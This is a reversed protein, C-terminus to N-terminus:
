LFNFILLSGSLNQILIKNVQGNLLYVAIYDTHREDKAYFLLGESKETKFELSIDYARPAKPQAEYTVYTYQNTGFRIGADFDVDLDPTIPLKCIPDEKYPRTPRPRRTTTTTTTTTLTTSTPTTAGPRSPKYVEDPEIENESEDGDSDFRADIDPEQEEEPIIPPRTEPRQAPRTEPKTYKPETRGDPYFNPIALPEYDFLDRPCQDLVASQRDTSAAFNGPNSNITVDSICGIFYAANPVAGSRTRYGQPLGGFYIEGDDIYIPEPADDSETLYRDDISLRLRNSEHTATIVHWEGDNYKVAGTNIELTRSRLVLVGDELTLTFTVSQDPTTLYFIIGREERSRFKLNIILNNNVNIDNLKLHGPESPKYSLITSQKVPCGPRVDYAEINHTLDISIGTFTVDEICGDFNKSTIEDHPIHGRHPHGGFYMVDVEDLYEDTDATDGFDEEQYFQQGDVRLIGVRGDRDAEVRHWQDDNLKINSQLRVAEAREGLKFQFVVDGDQLEISIFHRSSGAYFLLGDPADQAAKFRLGINSRERFNYPKADLAVYGNGGFRLGNVPTDNDLLRDREIAGDTNSQGDVFNWLGVDKDGIKFDEIQGVFSNYKVSDQMKYDPPYGGVFIRSNDDWHFLNHDGPLEFPTEAFVEDGNDNEDRITLKVKQGSRDVIAQYWKNDAVYKKGIIKEPGNGLDINLVPYGNELELEMFDENRNRGGTKAENGLYFLFGDPRDTKFYTSVKTNSLVALDEPPKLELTTNPYFTLGVEIGNAADRAQKIKKKLEDINEGIVSLRSSSKDQAKKVDEEISLIEPVQNEIRRLHTNIQNISKAVDDVEKPIDRAKTVAEPIEKTIPKLINLAEKAKREAEDAYEAAREWEGAHSVSPINDLAENIGLLQDDSQKNLTVIGEVTKATQDLHPQLRTQVSNLATRANNLLERAVADSKAAKNEVGDSLKTANQAAKLATEIAQNAEEAIEAINDYAKVAKLAHNSASSSYERNLSDAIGELEEAKFQADRTIEDIKTYDEDRKDLAKLAGVNTEKLNLNEVDVDKHNLHIDELKSDAEDIRKKATALSDQIQKTQNGITDFKSQLSARKNKQNFFEADNAWQRSQATRNFLDEIREDFLAFNDKLHELRDYQEKVPAYYAEADALASQANEPQNVLDEPTKHTKIQALVDQAEAIATDLRTSGSQDLNDALKKVDRAANRANTNVFRCENLADNAALLTVEGQDIASETDNVAFSARKELAKADQLLQNITKEHPTLNVGKPDLKSVEPFLNNIADNYYDLKKATFYPQSAEDFEDKVPDFENKLADTVDLLAHHCADCEFCGSDQVLVWRYPCRDCKEGVVGPLCQCQGTQADCGLGRSYETNCKCHECGDPGYNWYGPLCRDCQPGTVGPKCACQGTHDDCQTSNSAVACDCARCGYGSEFGWHDDECRDCKEGVVNPLCHCQGTFSDCYETGHLDCICSQCDKRNVADGFYNAACLNCAAGATNNLCRLCEGSVSDCSSPDQPDINGSCGCPKCYEGEISPEGYFGAACSQCKEGAYGPKCDCHIRYGDESVECGFAFNNSEIPLPCACIMCDYPSGNTANGYYGEICQDCHDGTTHHECNKCVGTNCDCERAHGNCECPICYGGYPGDPDRYYGPACNECSLGTYGPPCECREVGLQEYLRPNEPDEDALTLYVDSLTTELGQEWYSARIYIAELDRLVTMFQERTVPLGAATYFNTEVFHVSGYFLQRSAPQEYSQHTITLTKGKLIVDPAIIAKGFPGNSFLIKYTLYGGYSTLHNDQSLLFQISGFYTIGDLATDDVVDNFIVQATSDDVLIDRDEWENINADGKTISITNLTVEKSLMSVNFPRLYAKDCRNTKGFCFCKTCGEPNNAQLNYTGDICRDCAQGIVNKKCFCEQTDADCIEFTTGELRCDCEQCYPFNWYGNQCRSCTRDVIHDRCACSGNNSDCQLNGNIVGQPHCSCEECGIIPDFGYTLPVCQDCKEGTVRDPCICAGTEKECISNEPCDCPKCDPFGYFGTRCADCQRGIVNPKCQCQGGFPECEFSTSGSYDCQCPLAGSNYDATLSFVAQKCFNSANLSIYFHNHGCQQIFEKTQDYTEEALLTPTFQDIPVVLIYNLLVEKNRNPNTLNFTFEDEIDFFLIGNDQSVQTRCGSTAPCHKVSFKGNHVNHPTALNYQLNFKPYKPQHYGM